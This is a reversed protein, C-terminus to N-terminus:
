ARRAKVVFEIWLMWVAVVFVIFIGQWVYEHVFNFWKQGPSRDVAGVVGLTALRLINIAYLIGLGGIAGVLRRAWGTPFALVAALFISMSPIAGCDPVVRFTFELGRTAARREPGLPIEQIQTQVGSLKAELEAIAVTNEDPVTKLRRIERLIEIQQTGLGKELIVRVIPGHDQISGGNRILSHAEFQWSEYPSLPRTDAATEAVAEAGADIAQWEAIQRRKSAARTNRSPEVEAEDGVAELVWATHRAVQYLYWINAETNMAYRYGVLMLMVLIVFSAVFRVIRRGASREPPDTATDPPEASTDVDEASM